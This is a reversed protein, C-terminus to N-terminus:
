IEFCIPKAISILTIDVSSRILILVEGESSSFYDNEFSKNKLIGKSKM